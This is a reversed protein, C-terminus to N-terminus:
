QGQAATFRGVHFNAGGLALLMSAMAEDDDEEEGASSVGNELGGFGPSEAFSASAQPLGRSGAAAIYRSGAAPELGPTHSDVRPESAERHPAHRAPHLAAGTPGAGTSHSHSQLSSADRHAITTFLQRATSSFSNLSTCPMAQSLTVQHADLDPQLVHAQTPQGFRAYTGPSTGIQWDHLSVRPTSDASSGFRHSYASPTSLRVTHPTLDPSGMAPRDGDSVPSAQLVASSAQVAAAPPSQVAQVAGHQTHHDHRASYQSTVQPDQLTNCEHQQMIFGEMGTVAAPESGKVASPSGGLLMGAMAAEEEDNSGSGGAQAGEAFTTSSRAHGHMHMSEAHCLGDAHAHDAAPGHDHLGCSALSAHRAHKASGMSPGHLEGHSMIQSALAVHHGADALGAAGDQHMLLSQALTVAQLAVERLEQTSPVCPLSSTANCLMCGATPWAFPRVVAHIVLEGALMYADACACICLAHVKRHKGAHVPTCACTLLQDLVVAHQLARVQAEQKSLRAAAEATEARQRQWELAAALVAQVTQAYPPSANHSTCAHSLLGMLACTRVQQRM